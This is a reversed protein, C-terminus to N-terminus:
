KAVAIDRTQLTWIKKKRICFEIDQPVGRKKQEIFRSTNVVGMLLGGLEHELPGSIHQVELNRKDIVFITPTKRGSVLEEGHGKVVEVKMHDRSPEITRKRRQGGEIKTYNFKETIVTYVVGSYDAYIMNQVVVAMKAKQEDIGLKSRHYVARHSYLSAWCRKLNTTILKMGRRFLYTSHLGAFTSEETDETTASSRISVHGSGIGKYAKRIQATVEDPIKVRQFIEEIEEESMKGIDVLKETLYEYNKLIVYIYADVTITFGNPVSIQGMRMLRYLNIAKGGVKEINSSKSLPLVFVKADRYAELDQLPFLGRFSLVGQDPTGGGERRSEGDKAVIEHYEAETIKRVHGEDADLYMYDGTDFDKLISNRGVICPIKHERAIMAAHSTSGGKQTIIGSSKMMAANIEPTPNEAILIEGQRFDSVNKSSVKRVRGWAKGNYVIIGEGGTLYGMVFASVEGLVYISGEKYYQAVINEVEFEKDDTEPLKDELRLRLEMIVAESYMEIGREISNMAQVLLQMNGQSDGKGKYYLYEKLLVLARQFGTEVKPGVRQRLKQAVRKGKKDIYEGAENKIFRKFAGMHSAVVSTLIQQLYVVYKMLEAVTMIQPHKAPDLQANVFGYSLHEQSELFTDFQQLEDGFRITDGDTSPSVRAIVLHLRRRVDGLGVM